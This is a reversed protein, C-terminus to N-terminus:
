KNEKRRSILFMGVVGAMVMVGLITFFYTGTGGTSPLAGLKTDSMQTNFTITGTARDTTLKASVDAFNKNISYGEPATTEKLHYIIAAEDKGDKDKGAVDLGSITLIGDSGTFVETITGDPDYKYQGAVPNGQADKNVATFTLPTASDGKTVKFGAGSLTKPNEKSDDYKTLTIQGTYLDEDESGYEPKDWNDGSGAKVTNKVHIDTVKAQYTIVITKNANVNTAVLDSLDLTFTNGEPTVYRTELDATGVKVTVAIKGKNADNATEIVSYKAGSITDKIRYFRNKENTTPLYPITGTITYTETRGIETVKDTEQATKEITTPTKKADITKNELETPIGTSTDYTKFAIYAAMASYSYGTETGKIAYVGASHVTIPSAANNTAGAMITSDGLVAELANEMQQTTAAGTIVTGEEATRKEEAKLLMEIAEQDDTLGGLATKYKGAIATSTFDWGTRKTTDPKIAQIYSFTAGTASTITITASSQTTANEDAAFVSACVSLVMIVSIFLASIKRLYKKMTM